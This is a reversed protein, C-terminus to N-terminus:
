STTISRVACPPPVPKAASWAPPLGTLHPPRRRRRDARFGARLTRAGPRPLGLPQEVDRLVPRVQPGAAGGPLARGDARHGGQQLLGLVPAAAHAPGRDVVNGIRLCLISLETTDTFHRALAEGFVKSCGYLGRPWVASEHTVKDWAAPAAEYRGEVLARYPMVNEWGATAMGSSAYVIRRVGARRAAEFVNYTGVINDNLITEWSESPRAFAALHVVADIGDFAPRIAELDGVDATVCPVGPLARRNLARLAFRGQLHERLVGGILGSMGTILVNKM